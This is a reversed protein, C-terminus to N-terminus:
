PLALTTHKKSVSLQFAAGKKLLRISANGLQALEVKNM